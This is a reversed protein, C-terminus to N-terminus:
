YNLNLLQKLICDINNSNRRAVLNTTSNTYVLNIEYTNKLREWWNSNWSEGSLLPHFTSSYANVFNWRDVQPDNYMEELKQRLDSPFGPPFEMKFGRMMGAKEVEDPGDEWRTFGKHMEWAYIEEQTPTEGRRVAELIANFDFSSADQTGSPNTEGINSHRLLPNLAIQM